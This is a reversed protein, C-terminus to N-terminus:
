AVKDCRRGQALRGRRCGTMIMVAATRAVFGTLSRAEAELADRVPGHLVVVLELLVVLTVRVTCSGHAPHARM